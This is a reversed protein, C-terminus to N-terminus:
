ESDLSYAALWGALGGDRESLAKLAVSDRAGLRHLELVAVSALPDDQTILAELERIADQRPLACDRVLRALPRGTPHRAAAAAIDLAQAAPLRCAAFTARRARAEDRSALAEALDGTLPIHPPGPPALDVAPPAEDRAALMMAAALLFLGLLSRGREVIIPAM